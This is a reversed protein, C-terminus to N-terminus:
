MVETTKAGKIILIAQIENINFDSGNTNSVKLDLHKGRIDRGGAIQQHIIKLKNDHPTVGRVIDIDDDGRLAISLPGDSRMTLYLRRLRKEQELEFATPGTRFHADIDTGNDKDAELLTYVGSSDGGLITDNFKCMGKFNFNAYQSPAVLPLSLCLTLKSDGTGLCVIYRTGTNVACGRIASPYELTSYTLNTLKGNSTGVCIGKPTTFIQMPGPDISGNAVSIGDIHLDTGEIVPYHAVVLQSMEKPNTGAMFYIKNTTGVFIGGLVPAVMRIGGPFPIYNAALRFLNPAFPESYWLVNTDAIWVRGAYYRVIKGVPPNNYERTDEPYNTETPKVYTYSVGNVLVGSEAGNMYITADGVQAYSMYRDASLGTRLQTISLDEAVSYLINDCVLLCDGGDYFLSHCDGTISTSEFGKRRFIAGTFDFDVNYAEALHTVGTKPNYEIRAPDFRTALGKSQKFWVAQAM